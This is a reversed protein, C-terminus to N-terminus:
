LRALGKRKGKLSEHTARATASEGPLVGEVLKDGNRADEGSRVREM